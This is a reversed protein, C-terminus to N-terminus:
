YGRHLLLERYADYDHIALGKLEARGSYAEAIKSLLEELRSEAPQLDDGTAFDERKARVGIWMRKGLAATLAMEEAVDDIVRDAPRDYAMVVIEDAVVAIKELFSAGHFTRSEWWVPIDVVLPLQEPRTRESVSELLDVYHAMTTESNEDWESRLHPEVDLHLGDFREGLAASRNFSIVAAVFADASARKGPRTWEPEGNLASVAVGRDHALSLFSRFRDPHEDLERLSVFLFISGLQRAEAFDLFFEREASSGQFDPSWVWLARGDGPNRTAVPLRAESPLLNEFDLREPLVGVARHLTVRARHVGYDGRIWAARAETSAVEAEVSLLRGGQGGWREVVHAVRRAERAAEMQRRLEQRVMEATALAEYAAVVEVAVELEVRELELELQRVLAEQQDLRAQRLPWIAIPTAFVMGISAGELFDGRGEESSEGYSARLDIRPLASAVKDEGARGGEARAEAKRIDARTQEALALARELSEPSTQAVSRRAVPIPEAVYRNLLANLTAEALTSQREVDIRRRRTTEIDHRAALVDRDLATGYRALVSVVRYREDKAELERTLVEALEQAELLDFYADLARDQIGTRVRAYEALAEVVLAEAERMEAKRQWMGGFISQTLSAFIGVPHFRTLLRFEPTVSVNAERLRGRAEVVGYVAQRVEVNRGLVLRMLRSPELPSQVQDIAMDPPLPAERSGKGHEDWLARLLERAREDYPEREIAAFLAEETPPREARVYSMLAREFPEVQSSAPLAPVSVRPSACGSLGWLALALM